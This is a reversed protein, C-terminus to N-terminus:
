NPFPVDKIKIYNLKAFEEKIFKKPPDPKQFIEKAM